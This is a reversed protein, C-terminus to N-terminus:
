PYASCLQGNVLTNSVDKGAATLSACYIKPTNTACDSPASGELGSSIRSDRCNVYQSKGDLSVLKYECFAGPQTLAFNCSQMLSDVNSSPQFINVKEWLSKWGMTFGLIVLVLVVIGIVILILTAVSMEQGKKNVM